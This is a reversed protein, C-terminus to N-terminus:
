LFLVKKSAYFSKKDLVLLIDEINTVASIEPLIYSKQFVWDSFSSNYSM